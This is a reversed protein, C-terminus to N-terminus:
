KKFKPEKGQFLRQINASHKFIILAAMSLAPILAYYTPILLATLISAISVMVLSALSSYRFLKFIVLWALTCGLGVWLSLGWYVGLATAVGKGGKFQYFVPFVHGVVAALGVIGMLHTSIDKVSPFFISSYKVLLVPLLGKFLDFLLVMAAKSKGAIRLVNTAGPNNSGTSRPDPLGFMKCIVIASSLSGLLYAGLTLIIASVLM